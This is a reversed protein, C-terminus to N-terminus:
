LPVASAGRSAAVELDRRGRKWSPTPLGKRAARLSRSEAGFGTEWASRVDRPFARWLDQRARRMAGPLRCRWSGPHVAACRGCSTSIRDGRRLRCQGRGRDPSGRRRPLPADRHGASLDASADDTTLIVLGAEDKVPVVSRDFWGQAQAHAAKREQAAPVAENWGAKQLVIKPLNGGQELVPAVCGMVVDDVRGTDLDHRAQIEKLLTTVLDIPKVENLASNPKGKSRPTRIADYVFAAEAM